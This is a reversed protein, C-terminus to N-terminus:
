KNASNAPMLVTKLGALHVDEARLQYRPLASQKILANLTEKPASTAIWNSMWAPIAGGPDVLTEFTIRTWGDKLPEIVFQNNLEPVRVKGKSPPMYGQVAVTKITITFTNADQTITNKLVAERNNVPWPTHFEMYYVADPWQQQRFARECQFAWNPLGDIDALVALIHPMPHPAEVVGKFSKVAYGTVDRVYSNVEGRKKAQSVAQWVSDAMVPMVFMSVCLLISIQANHNNPM